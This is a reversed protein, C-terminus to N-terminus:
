DIEDGAGAGAEEGIFHVAAEFGVALGQGGGGSEEGVGEGEGAEGFGVAEGAEAEAPEGGAVGVGEGAELGVLVVGGDAGGGGDFAEGEDGEM